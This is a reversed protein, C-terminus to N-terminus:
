KVGDPAPLRYYRANLYSAVDRVDEDDWGLRLENQWVRIVRQLRDWSGIESGVRFHIETMHCHFCYNGYLLRGREPSAAQAGVTAAILLLAPYRPIM